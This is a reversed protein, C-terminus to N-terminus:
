KMVKLIYASMIKGGVDRNFGAYYLKSSIEYTGVPLNVATILDGSDERSMAVVIEGTATNKIRLQGYNRNPASSNSPYSYLQSTVFFLVKSPRAVSFYEYDFFYNFIDVASVGNAELHDTKISGAFIRDANLTGVTIKGADLSAIAASDATITGVAMSDATISNKVVLDGRIAVLGTRADIAFPVIGARGPAGVAFTDALVIFSSEQAGGTSVGSNLSLGAIYGNLDLKVGWKGRLGDVASSTVNLDQRLVASTNTLGTISNTTTAQLQEFKTVGAGVPNVTIQAGSQILATNLGVRAWMTNIADVLANDNNVRATTETQVAARNTGVDAIITAIQAATATGADTRAKAETTIAATNADTKTAVTNIQAALSTDKDARATAETQIAARNTGVDAIITAIQAATATGADTRAKAETTIAATNADTKTAVTNIQAALSTDNDARATAETQIAARNTGVDAIITAIQAATATGADTRAKAETTIAATNADTKTAVTNIQAALSTDKDARATAETQIAAANSAVGASVTDIRSALSDTKTQVTKEVVSIAAGRAASEALLAATRTQAETLLAATRAQAEALLAAIRSKAEQLLMYSASGPQSDPADILGIRTFMSTWAASSLIRQELKDALDQMASGPQNVGAAIPGALANAVAAATYGNKTLDGMTLFANEGTGTDGNRVALGDVIARLVERTQVDKIAQLASNSVSQVAAAM